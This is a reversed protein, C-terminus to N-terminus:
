SEVESKEENLVFPTVCLNKAVDYIISKLEEKVVNDDEWYRIKFSRVKNNKRFEIVPRVYSDYGNYVHERYISIELQNDWAWQMLQCIIKGDRFEKM